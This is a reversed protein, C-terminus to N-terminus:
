RLSVIRRVLERGETTLRAFYMGSASGGSETRGDWRLAYEGAERWDQVVRKVVRGQPDYIALSVRGARPLALRFEAGARGPNASVLAFALEKPLGAGEVGVSGTPTTAACEGENGHIDYACVKYAADHGGVDHFNTLPGQYIRNSPLPTFGAYDSKYLRYGALDSEGNAGWTLYAGDGADFHGAFPAPAVPPLNDVSYGSDPWSSWSPSSYTNADVMFLTAPNSGAISDGTTSAVLSYAPYQAAVQTAVLEWYITQGSEARARFVRTGAASATAGTGAPITRVRAGDAGGIAAGDPDLELVGRGAALAATAEAAPAQRWVRYNAVTLYPEADLYSANWSVRV